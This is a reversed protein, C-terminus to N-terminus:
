DESETVTKPHASNAPLCASVDRDWTFCGLCYADELGAQEHDTPLVLRTCCPCPHPAETAPDIRFILGTPTHAWLTGHEKRTLSLAFRKAEEAPISFPSGGMLWVAERAVAGLSMPGLTQSPSFAAGNVPARTVSLVFSM